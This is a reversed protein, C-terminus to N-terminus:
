LDLFMQLLFCTRALSGPGHPFDRHLGGLGTQVYSFPYCFKKLIYFGYNKTPFFFARFGPKPTPQPPCQWRCSTSQGHGPTWGQEGPPCQTSSGGQHQAMPHGDM